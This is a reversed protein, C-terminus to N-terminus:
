ELEVPVCWPANAPTVLRAAVLMAVVESVESANQVEWRTYQSLGCQALYAGTIALDGAGAPERIMYKLIIELIGFSMCSGADAATLERKDLLRCSTPAVLFKGCRLPTVAVTPSPAARQNLELAKALASKQDSFVHTYDGTNRLITKGDTSIAASLLVYKHVAPWKALPEEESRARKPAPGAVASSSVNAAVSASM